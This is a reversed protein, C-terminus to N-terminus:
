SARVSHGIRAEVKKLAARLATKISTKDTWISEFGQVVEQSLLPSSGVAYGIYVADAFDTAHRKAGEGLSAWIHVCIECVPQSLREGPFVEETTVLMGLQMGQAALCEGAHRALKRNTVKSTPKPSPDSHLVISLRVKHGLWEQLQSPSHLAACIPSLEADAWLAVANEKGRGQLEPIIAFVRCDARMFSDSRLKSAKTSAFIPTFVLLSHFASLDRWGESRPVVKIEAQPFLSQVEKAWELAQVMASNPTTISSSLFGLKLDTWLNGTFDNHSDDVVLGICLKEACLQHDGTMLSQWWQSKVWIGKQQVLRRQNEIQHKVSQATQTKYRSHGHRHLAVLDNRCVIKKKDKGYTKRLCYEVDEYGYFYGGDFGGDDLFEARRALMIAATVAPVNCASFLNQASPSQVNVEYPWYVHGSLTFRVGLHQIPSIAIEAPNNKEPDHKILKLGAFATDKDALTKILEPLVDQVLVIDNNLFLVYEGKALQAGLNSSESFSQNIELQVWKIPIQHSWKAAVLKSTDDSNHDIVILETPVTNHTHWSEFLACLCDADNRNLIVASVVPKIKQHVRLNFQESAKSAQLLPIAHFEQDSFKVEWHMKKREYSRKNGVAQRTIPCRLQLTHVGEKKLRYPVSVEFGLLGLEAQPKDLFEAIEPVYLNPRIVLEVQEDVLLEVEAAEKLNHINMVWGVLGAASISEIHGVLQRSMKQQSNSQTAVETDCGLDLDQM